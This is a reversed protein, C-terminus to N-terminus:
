ISLYGGFQGSVTEWKPLTLCVDTDIALGGFRMAFRTRCRGILSSRDAVGSRAAAM